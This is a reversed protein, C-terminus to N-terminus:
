WATSRTTPGDLPNDMFGFGSASIQYTGTISEQQTPLRRRRARRLKSCNATSTHLERKRRIITGYLAYADYLDGTDSLIWIVHRFYYTGNLMGNGSNDWNATTQASATMGTVAALILFARSLRNLMTLKSTNRHLNNVSIKSMGPDNLQKYRLLKGM